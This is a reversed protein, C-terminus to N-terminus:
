WIFKHQTEPVLICHQRTRAFLAYLIYETIQLRTQVVPYDIAAKEAPVKKLSAELTLALQKAPHPMAGSITFHNENVPITGRVYGYKDNFPMYIYANDGSEKEASTAVVKLNLGEVYAPKTYVNEM